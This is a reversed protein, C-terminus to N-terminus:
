IKDDLDADDIVNIYKRSKASVNDLTAVDDTSMSAFDRKTLKTPRLRLLVDGNIDSYVYATVAKGAKISEFADKIEAEEGFLNSAFSERGILHSNKPDIVSLIDFKATFYFSPQMKKDKPKTATIKKRSKAGDGIAKLTAMATLTKVAKTTEVSNQTQTLKSM